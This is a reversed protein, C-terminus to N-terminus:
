VGRVVVDIVPYFLTPTGSVDRYMRVVPGSIDKSDVSYSVPMDTQLISQFAITTSTIVGYSKTLPIKVGGAYKHLTISPGASQITMTRNRIRCNAGATETTFTEEVTLTDATPTGSM